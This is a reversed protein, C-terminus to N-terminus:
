ILTETEFKTLNKEYLKPNKNKILIQTKRNNIINTLFKNMILTSYQCLIIVNVTELKAM